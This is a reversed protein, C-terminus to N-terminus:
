HTKMNTHILESRNKKTRSFDQSKEPMENGVSLLDCFESSDTTCYTKVPNRKQHSLIKLEPVV